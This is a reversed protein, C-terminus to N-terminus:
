LDSEQTRMATPHPCLSIENGVVTIEWIPIPPVQQHLSHQGTGRRPFLLRYNEETAGGVFLVTLMIGPIPFVSKM